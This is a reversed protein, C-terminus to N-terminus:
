LNKKKNYYHHTSYTKALDVATGLSIEIIDSISQKKENASDTFYKHCSIQTKGAPLVTANLANVVSSPLKTEPKVQNVVMSKRVCGSKNSENRSKKTAKTQTEKKDTAMATKQM